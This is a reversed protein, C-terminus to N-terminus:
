QPVPTWLTVEWCATAAHLVAFHDRMPSVYDAHQTEDTLGEIRISSAQNLSVCALIEAM